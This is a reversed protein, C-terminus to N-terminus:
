GESGCVGCDWYLRSCFERIKLEGDLESGELAHGMPCCWFWKGIKGAGEGDNAGSGSVRGLWNKDMVPPESVFEMRTFGPNELVRLAMIAHYWVWLPNWIPHGDAIIRLELTKVARLSSLYAEITRALPWTGPDMHRPDQHSTCPPTTLTLVVHRLQTLTSLPLPWPTPYYTSPDSSFSAPPSTFASCASESLHLHFTKRATLLSLFEHHVQQSVLLLTNSKWAPSAITKPKNRRLRRVRRSLFTSQFLTLRPPLLGTHWAHILENEAGPASYHPTGSSLLHTFIMDRLEPPLHLFPFPKPPKRNQLMTTLTHSLLYITSLSLALITLLISTPTSYLLNQFSNVFDTGYAATASLGGEIDM